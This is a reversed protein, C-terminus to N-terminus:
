LRKEYEEFEQVDALRRIVPEPLNAPVFYLADEDNPPRQWFRIGPYQAHACSFTSELSGPEGLRLIVRHGNTLQKTATMLWLDNM